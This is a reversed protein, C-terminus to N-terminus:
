KSDELVTEVAAVPMVLVVFVLWLAVIVVGVPWSVLGIVLRQWSTRSLYWNALAKM